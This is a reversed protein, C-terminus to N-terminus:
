PRRGLRRRDRRARGRERIRRGLEEERLRITDVFGYPYEWTLPRTRREDIRTYADQNLNSFTGASVGEEWLISTVEEANRTSVGLFCTEMMVEEVSSERMRYREIVETTFKAGRLKPVNVEIKGAQTLLGRTHHGSRYAQRKDTREYRGASM